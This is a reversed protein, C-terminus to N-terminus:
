SRSLGRINFPITRPSVSLGQALLQGPYIPRHVPGPMVRLRPVGQLPQLDRPAQRRWTARRYFPNKGRGSRFEPSSRLQVNDRAASAHATPAAPAGPLVTFADGAPAAAAISRAADGAAWLFPLTPSFNPPSPLRGCPRGHNLPAPPNGWLPACVSLLSRSTHASWCGGGGGGPNVLMRHGVSELRGHSSPSQWRECGAACRFRLCLLFPFEDVFYFIIVWANKHDGLELLIFGCWFLLAFVFIYFFFKCINWEMSAWFTNFVHRLIKTLNIM